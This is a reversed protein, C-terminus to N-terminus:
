NEATSTSTVFAELQEVKRQLQKLDELLIEKCDNFGDEYARRRKPDNVYFFAELEPSTLGIM